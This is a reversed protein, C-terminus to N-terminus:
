LFRDPACARDMDCGLQATKKQLLLLAELEKLKWCRILLSQLPQGFYM